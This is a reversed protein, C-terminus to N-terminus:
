EQLHHGENGILRLRQMNNLGCTICLTENIANKRNAAAALRERQVKSFAFCSNPSTGIAIVKEVARIGSHKARKRSKSLTRSNVRTSASMFKESNMSSVEM